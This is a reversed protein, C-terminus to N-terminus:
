TDLNWINHQTHESNKLFNQLLFPSSVDTISLLWTRLPPFFFDKFDTILMTFNIGM